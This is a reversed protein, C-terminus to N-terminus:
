QVKHDKKVVVQILYQWTQGGREQLVRLQRHHWVVHPQHVQVRGEDLRGGAGLGVGDYGGQGLWLAVRQARLELLYM